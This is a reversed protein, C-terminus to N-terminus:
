HGGLHKKNKVKSAINVNNKLSLIDYLLRLVTSIMTKRVIKTSALIHSIFRSGPPGFAEPDAVSSPVTWM